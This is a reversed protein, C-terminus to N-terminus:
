ELYLQYKEVAFKRKEIRKAKEKLIKLQKEKRAIDQDKKENEETIRCINEDSKKM